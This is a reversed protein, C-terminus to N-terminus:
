PKPKGLHWRLLERFVAAAAPSQVASAPIVHLPRGGPSDPFLVIVKDSEGWGRLSSWPVLVPRAGDPRVLLGHDDVHVSAPGAGFVSGHCQAHAWWGLAVLALAAVVLCMAWLLVTAGGIATLVGLIMGVIAVGLLGTITNRQDPRAVYLADLAAIARPEHSFEARLVREAAM